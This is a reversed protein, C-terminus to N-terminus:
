ADRRLRRGGFRMESVRGIEGMGRGVDGVASFRKRANICRDDKSIRSM